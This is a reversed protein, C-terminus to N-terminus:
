TATDELSSSEVLVAGVITGGPATASVTVATVGGTVLRSFWLRILDGDLDMFKITGHM